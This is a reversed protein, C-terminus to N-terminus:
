LSHLGQRAIRVWWSAYFLVTSCVYKSHVAIWSTLCRPGRNFASTSTRRVGVPKVTGDSTANTPAAQGIVLGDSGAGAAAAKMSGGATTDPTPMPGTVTARWSDLKSNMQQENAAAAQGTSTGGARNCPVGIAQQRYSFM